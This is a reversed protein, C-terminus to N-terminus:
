DSAGGPHVGFGSQHYLSCEFLSPQRPLFSLHSHCLFVQPPLTAELHSDGMEHLSEKLKSVRGQLVEERFSPPGIPCGLLSFGERTVPVEPPLPSLSAVCGKRSLSSLSAETSTSALLPVSPGRHPTCCLPGWSPGGPFWVLRNTRLPWHECYCGTLLKYIALQYTHSYWVVRSNKPVFRDLSFSKM